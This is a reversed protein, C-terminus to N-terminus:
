KVKQKSVATAYKNIADVSPYDGYYDWPPPGSAPLSLSAACTPTSGAITKYQLDRGTRAVVVRVKETYKYRIIQGVEGDSKRTYSGCSGVKVANADDPRCVVLQIPGPWRGEDWKANIDYDSDVGWRESVVVLPHVTGGYKAAHPIPTGTCAAVLEDETVPPTPTPRPTPPPTAPRTPTPTPVEVVDPIWQGTISDFHGPPRPTTVPSLTPTSTAPGPTPDETPSPTVYVIVPTPPPAGVCGLALAALVLCGAIARM